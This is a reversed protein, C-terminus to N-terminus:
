ITIQIPELRFFGCYAIGFDTFLRKLYKVLCLIKLIKLIEKLFKLSRKSKRNQWIRMRVVVVVFQIEDCFSIQSFDM